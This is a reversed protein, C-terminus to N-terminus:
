VLLLLLSLLLSRGFNTKEGAIGDFSPRTPRQRGVVIQLRNQRRHRQGVEVESEEVAFVLLSLGSTASNVANRFISIECVGTKMTLCDKHNTTQYVTTILALNEEEGGRGRKGRNLFTIGAHLGEIFRGFFLFM